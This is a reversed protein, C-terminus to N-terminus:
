RFKMKESTLCADDPKKAPDSLFSPVIETVACRSSFLVGHTTNKVEYFHSNPFREAVMKGWAPPTDPDYEGAFILAPIDSRVPRDEAKSAPPINWAKCIEPFSTQIGFGGLGRKESLQSRITKMDQFPIEERCWVSYRMGWVFGTSTLKGEATRRFHNLDAYDRRSLKDIVFPIDPLAETSELLEYIYDVIDAGRLRIPITKVNETANIVFPDKDAAKVLDFFTQKLRPYKANCESDSVCTAFIKKLSAEVSDVSTEDYNATPPLVSDLIVSRVGAPFLRIYTLMLRTSYSIGYLNWKDIKLARRLDELDAASAESNYAALDYGERILRERCTKVAAIETKLAAADNMDEAASRHHAENVEPCAMNPGTSNTGRQEFIIFDRGKTYPELGRAGRVRGLSSAGPGGATYVVPDPQPTASNSKVVIVPLAIVRSTPKSRNESVFLNGCEAKVGDPIQLPCMGTEFRPVKQPDQAFLVGLAFTVFVAAAIIHKM